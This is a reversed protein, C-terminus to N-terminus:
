SEGFAEAKSRSEGDFYPREGIRVVRNRFREGLRDYDFTAAHFASRNDWIALYVGVGDACM